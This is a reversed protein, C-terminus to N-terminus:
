KLKVTYSLKDTEGAKVMTDIYSGIFGDSQAAWLAIGNSFEDPDVAEGMFYAANIRAFTDALLAIEERTLTSEAFRDQVQRRAVQEFYWRAYEDFHLLNEDTSGQGAAWAAVDLSKATYTLSKGTYVIEGYRSEHLAMSGTAVEPIAENVISQTHIHGSFNCVVPGQELLPLLEGANYIQYGFSLRENHAYLNQHTVTMVEAGAKKADALQAQLWTLTGDKVMGRGYCNVDLMLIRLYPTVQYVYSFSSEDRALAQDPGFPSYLQVFASSSLAPTVAVQDQTYDYAEGDVDHNGPLVLVQVGANQLTHLRAAFEEHSQVAGNLTLDGSLILVAPKDAAAQALLTDVVAPSYHVLKGDMSPAPTEYIDNDGLLAPSLYHMDTAIYMTVPEQSHKKALRVAFIGGLALAATLLLALLICVIKKKM